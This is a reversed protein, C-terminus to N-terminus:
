KSLLAKDPGLQVQEDAPYFVTLVPRVAVTNGAPSVWKQIGLKGQGAAANAQQIKRYGRIKAKRYAENV